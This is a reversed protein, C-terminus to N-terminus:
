DVRLGSSKSRQEKFTHLHKLPEDSLHCRSTPESYSHMCRCWKCYYEYYYVTYVDKFFM